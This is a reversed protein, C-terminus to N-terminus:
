HGHSRTGPALRYETGCYPCKAVNSDTLDLFVRPHLNWSPDKNIPCHLPLDKENVMVVNHTESM